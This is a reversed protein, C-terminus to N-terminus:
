WIFIFLENILTSVYYKFSTTTTSEKTSKRRKRPKRRRMTSMSPMVVLVSLRPQPLISRLSTSTLMNQTKRRRTSRMSCNEVYALMFYTLENFYKLIEALALCWVFFFFFSRKVVSNILLKILNYGVKALTLKAHVQEVNINNHVLVM